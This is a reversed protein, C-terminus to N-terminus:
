KRRPRYARFRYSTRSPAPDQAPRTLTCSRLCRPCRIRQGEQGAGYHVGLGCGPCRFRYVEEPKGRFRHLLFYGGVAVVIAGGLILLSAM